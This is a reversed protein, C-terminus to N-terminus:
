ASRLGADAACAAGREGYRMTWPCGRAQRCGPTRPPGASRTPWRFISAITLAASAWQFRHVALEVLVVRQRRTLLDEHLEPGPEVGSSRSRPKAPPSGRRPGRRRPPAGGARRRRARPSRRASNRRRDDRDEGVDERQPPGELPRRSHRGPRPARRRPRGRTAPKTASRARSPAPAGPRRRSSAM